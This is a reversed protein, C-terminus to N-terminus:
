EEDVSDKTAAKVLMGAVKPHSEAMALIQPDMSKLKALALEVKDVSSVPPTAQVKAAHFKQKFNLPLDQPALYQALEDASATQHFADFLSERQDDDIAPEGRLIAEAPSPDFPNPM